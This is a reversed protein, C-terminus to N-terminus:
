SQKLIKNLKRLLFLLIVQKKTKKKSAGDIFPLDSSCIERSGVENGIEPSSPPTTIPDSHCGGTEDDEIKSYRLSVVREPKNRGGSKNSRRRTPSLPEVCFKKKESPSLPEFMSRISSFKNGKDAKEKIKPLAPEDQPEGKVKDKEKKLRWSLSRRISSSLKRTEEKKEKGDSGEVTITPTPPSREADMEPSSEFQQKLKDVGTAQQECQEREAWYEVDPVKSNRKNIKKFKDTFYKITSNNSHKPTQQVSNIPQQPDSPFSSSCNKCVNAQGEVGVGVDDGYDHKSQHNRINQEEHQQVIKRWTNDKCVINNEEGGKSTQPTQVSATTTTSTEQQKHQLSSINEESRVEKSSKPKSKNRRLSGFSLNKLSKSRNLSPDDFSQAKSNNSSSTRPFIETMIADQNFTTSDFSSSFREHLTLPLLYSKRLSLREFRNSQQPQQQTQEIEISSNRNEEVVEKAKRIRDLYAIVAIIFDATECVRRGSALFVPERSDQHATRVISSLNNKHKHRRSLSNNKNVDQFLKSRTCSYVPITTLDERSNIPFSEDEDAVFQFITRVFPSPQQLILESSSSKDVGCWSERQKSLRRKQKLSMSSSRKLRLMSSTEKTKKTKNSSSSKNLRNLEIDSKSPTMKKKNKFFSLPSKRDPTSRSKLSELSKASKGILSGSNSSTSIRRFRSKRQLPTDNIDCLLSNFNRLRDIETNLSPASSVPSNNSDLSVGSSSLRDDDEYPVTLFEGSYRLDLDFRPSLDSRLFIESSSFRRDHGSYCPSTNDSLFDTQDDELSRPSLSGNSFATDSGPSCPSTSECPIMLFDTSYQAERHSYPNTEANMFNSSLSNFPPSTNVNITNSTEDIEIVYGDLKFSEVSSPSYTPREDTTTTTTTSDDSTTFEMSSLLEDEYSSSDDMRQQQQDDEDDDHVEEYSNENSPVSENEDYCFQYYDKKQLSSMRRRTRM